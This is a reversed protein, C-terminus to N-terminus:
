FTNRPPALAPNFRDRDKGPPSILHDAMEAPVSTLPFVVRPRMHCKICDTTRNVPCTSARTVAELASKSLGPRNSGHCSVCVREYAKLDNSVNTHPNHCSLCSLPEGAATRCRSRQLAYPQFRHTLNVEPTDLDVATATRHCRGCLENLRAPTRKGLNEMKLDRSNSAVADIHAKGPGHCSECGVGFMAKPVLLGSTPVTTTHCGLCMKGETEPHERGFPTDANSHVEQGPTKEWLKYPPFYSMKTEMLSNGNVSVYTVGLKGSGLAYTLTRSESSSGEGRVLSLRTGASQVRYGALPVVGEPPLAPGLRATDAERLSTDHYSNHHANFEPLHCPKCGENGVYNPDVLGVSTLPRAANPHSTHCGAIALGIIPLALMLLAAASLKLRHTKCTQPRHKMKTGPLM